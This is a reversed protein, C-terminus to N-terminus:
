KHVASSRIYDLSHAIEDHMKDPAAQLAKEAHQLAKEKCDADMYHQAIMMELRWLNQQDKEGFRDLYAALPQVAEEPSRNKQSLDQFDILALTFHVGQDNEPDLSALKARLAVTYDLQSEGREVLMRYKELFFFPDDSKLGAELIQEQASERDLEQAIQYLNMLVAPDQGLNALGKLLTADQELLKLLDGAFKDGSEPLYGIQAIVREQPDLLLLTPTEHIHFREKLEKNQSSEKASLISHEPFDVEMCVFRNAAKEAFSTSSLVERKMWMAEGSWDSGNFFLLAPKNEQQSLTRVHPYDTHWQVAAGLQSSFVLLLM